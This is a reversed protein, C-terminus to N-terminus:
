ILELVKTIIFTLALGIGVYVIREVNKSAYKKDACLMIEEVIKRNAVEMDAKTPINNLQEKINKIENAMVEYNM